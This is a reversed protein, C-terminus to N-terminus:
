QQVTAIERAADHEKYRQALHEAWTPTDGDAHEGARDIGHM